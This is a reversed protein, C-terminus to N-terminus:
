DSGSFGFHALAKRYYGHSARPVNVLIIALSTSIVIINPKVIVGRDGVILSRQSDYKKWVGFNLRYIRAYPVSHPVCHIARCNKIRIEKFADNWPIQDFYDKNEVYCGVLFTCVAPARACRHRFIMFYRPMEQSLVAEQRRRDPKQM